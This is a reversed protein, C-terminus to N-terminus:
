QTGECTAGKCASPSCGQYPEYSEGIMVWNSNDLPGYCDNPMAPAEGQGVTDNNEMWPPLQGGFTGNQVADSAIRVAEMPCAWVWATYATDNCQHGSVYIGLTCGIGQLSTPVPVTAAGCTWQGTPTGGGVECSLPAPNDVLCRNSRLIAEGSEGTNEDPPAGCATSVALAALSAITIVRARLSYRSTM